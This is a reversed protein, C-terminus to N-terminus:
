KIAFVFKHDYLSCSIKKSPNGEANEKFDFKIEFAKDDSGKFKGVRIDFSFKETHL